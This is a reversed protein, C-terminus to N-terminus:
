ANWVCGIGARGIRPGPQDRVGTAEDDIPGGYFRFAETQGYWERAALWSTRAADLGGASPQAVFAGVARQLDLAGTLAEEYSAQVLAAYHAVVAGPTVAQAHLSRTALAVVPLSLAQLFRRKDM